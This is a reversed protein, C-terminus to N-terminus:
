FKAPGQLFNGHNEETALSFGPHLQLLTRSADRGMVFFARLWPSVVVPEFGLCGDLRLEEEGYVAM